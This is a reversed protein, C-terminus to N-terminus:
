IVTVTSTATNAASDQVKITDVGPTAGATYLGTVANITGGSNNVLISYNYGVQTGGYATFKQTQTAPVTVTQPLMVVPTIFINGSDVTFRRNLASPNLTATFPGSSSISFGAATVFTNPDIQRVATALDNANVEEGVGPIFFAPLNSLIAAINPPNMGDLSTAMFQIYLTEPVVFDWQVTFDSGDLQTIVFTTVGKMNCGATREAYIVQAIDSSAANGDVIVWICHPPVGNADIEDTFNEHLFASTVGKVNKLAAFLSNFYGPSGIATSQQRRIKLAADSEENTGINTAAVPNNIGTVGLVISVPVTITNALAQVQGPLAALFFYSFTGAHTPTQTAALRWQNGANDAVTFVPQVTQDAGFLTLGQNVTIQVPAQTFTGAQRQIGNIAVRQDLVEGIANDPDFSNFTQVILDELDLIAQVLINMQQGDPTSSSLDIDPGYIQQYYYTFFNILEQRSAVEIGNATLDNPM